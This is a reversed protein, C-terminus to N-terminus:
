SDANDLIVEKNAPEEILLVYLLGKAGCPLKEEHEPCNCPSSLWELLQTSEWISQMEFTLALSPPNLPNCNHTQFDGFSFRENWHLPEM